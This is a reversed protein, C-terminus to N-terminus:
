KKKDKKDQSELEVIIAQIQILRIDIDNITNTLENKKQVLKTGENTLEKIREGNDAFLFGGMFLVLVFAIKKV